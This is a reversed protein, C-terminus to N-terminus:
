FKIKSDTGDVLESVLFEFLKCQLNVFFYTNNTEYILTILSLGCAMDVRYYYFVQKITLIPAILLVYIFYIYYLLIYYIVYIRLWYGDVGVTSIAPFYSYGDFLNTNLKTPKFVSELFDCCIFHSYGNDIKVPSKNLTGLINLFHIVSWFLHQLAECACIYYLTLVALPCSCKM